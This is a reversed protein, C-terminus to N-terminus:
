TASADPIYRSSVSHALSVTSKQEQEVWLTTQQLPLIGAM